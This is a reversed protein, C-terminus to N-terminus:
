GISYDFWSSQDLLKKLLKKLQERTVGQTDRKKNLLRKLEAQTDGPLDKFTLKITVTHHGPQKAPSAKMTVTASGVVEYNRNADIVSVSFREEVSRGM